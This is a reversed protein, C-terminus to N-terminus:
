IKVLFYSPSLGSSIGKSLICVAEHTHISEFHECKLLWDLIRKDGNLNVSIERAVDEVFMPNKAAREAIRMEDERLIIPYPINVVSDEVMLIIDEIKITNPQTEAVITVLSRQAHPFGCSSETTALYNSLEASCPCYSAYPVRVCQFFRYTPPELMGEFSCKYFEYSYNKTAISKKLIRTDFSFKVYSYNCGTGMSDIIRELLEKITKNNIINDSYTNLIRVFRSMSVGKVSKDLDTFLDVTAKLSYIEDEKGKVGCRFNIPIQVGQVGVRQIHVPTKPKNNQQVDPLNM